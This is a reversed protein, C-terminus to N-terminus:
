LDWAARALMWMNILIVIIAAVYFGRTLQGTVEEVFAHRILPQLRFASTIWLIWPLWPKHWRYLAWALGGGLLAGVVLWVLSARLFRVVTPHM